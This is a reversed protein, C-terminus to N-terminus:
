GNNFGQMVSANFKPGPSSVKVGGATAPTEGDDDGGLDATGAKVDKLFAIADEYRKRIEDTENVSAGCLRYRAIDCVFGRIIVPVPNLPLTYAGQLYADVEGQARNLAQDLVDDCIIGVNDRDTLAIVEREGFNAVMDGKDAYDM